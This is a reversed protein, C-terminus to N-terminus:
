KANKFQYSAFWSANKPSAYLKSLDYVLNGDVIRLNVHMTAKGDGIGEEWIAIGRIAPGNLAKIDRLLQLPAKQVAEEKLGRVALVEIWWGKDDKSVVIRSVLRNPAQDTTWSGQIREEFTPQVAKDGDGFSPSIFGLSFVSMFLCRMIEEKLM